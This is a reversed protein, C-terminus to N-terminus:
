SVFSLFCQNRLELRLPRNALQHLSRTRCWHNDLQATSHRLFLSAAGLGNRTLRTTGLTRRPSELRGWCCVNRVWGASADFTGHGSM